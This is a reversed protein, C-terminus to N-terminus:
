TYVCHELRGIWRRVRESGEETQILQDPIEYGLGPAPGTILEEGYVRGGQLVEARQLLEDRTMLMRYRYFM